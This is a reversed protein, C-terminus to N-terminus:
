RLAWRDLLEGYRGSAKITALGENIKALLADNGSQVYIGLEAEQTLVPGTMRLGAKFLENGSFAQALEVRGAVVGGVRREALDDLAQDLSSYLRMQDRRANFTRHVIDAGASGMLVGVTSGTLDDLGAAPSDWNVALLQGADLYPESVSYKVKRESTILATSCVADTSSGLTSLLGAIEGQAFLGPWSGEVFEVKFGAADGIARMLDLDFGAMVNDDQRFEMPFNHPDVGVRVVGRESCAALALAPVLVFTALKLEM